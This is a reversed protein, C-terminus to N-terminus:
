ASSHMWGMWGNATCRPSVFQQITTNQSRQKESLYKVSKGRCCHCDYDPLAAVILSQPLCRMTHLKM